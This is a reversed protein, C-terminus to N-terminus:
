VAEHIVEQTSTSATSYPLSMRAEVGGEPLNRLVLSQNRGYLTDLRGRVTSLGVGEREPEVANSRLGVGNDRVSLSLRAGHRSASIVIIGRGARAGIGHRVANEALPQLVLCPVLADDLGAEINFEVTLRDEFRTREIDLYMNLYEIEQLLPVEQVAGDRLSLRLLESLRAIMREAARPDEHVLASITNLANFLFHPHLRSKLWRLQAQALEANLRASDLLGKHYRRYYEVLYSALVVVWYLITCYDFSYLISWLFRTQSLQNGEIAYVLPTWVSKAVITFMASAFVHILVNRWYPKEDVRFRRALWLVVPTLLACITTFTIELYLSHTWPSKQIKFNSELHLELSSFVGLASWLGLVVFANIWRERLLLPAGRKSNYTIV